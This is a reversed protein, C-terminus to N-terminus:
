AEPASVNNLVNVVANSFDRLNVFRPDARLYDPSHGGPIFLLDYDQPSVDDISKDVSVTVKGKHGKIEEGVRRSVIDVRYGAERFAKCPTEVESDEFEPGLLCAVAKNLPM